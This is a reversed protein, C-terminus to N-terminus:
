TIGRIVTVIGVIALVMTTAALGGSVLCGVRDRWSRRIAPEMTPGPRQNAAETLETLRQAAESGLADVPYFTLNLAALRSAPERWAREFAILEETSIDDTLFGWRGAEALNGIRRNVAARRARLEPDDPYTSTLSVLRRLAPYTHGQALDREVRALVDDKGVDQNQAVAPLVAAFEEM